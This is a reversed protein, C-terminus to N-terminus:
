QLRKQINKWQNVTDKLFKVIGVIIDPLVNAFMLLFAIAFPTICVYLEILEEHSM